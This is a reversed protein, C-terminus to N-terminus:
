KASLDLSYLNGTSTRARVLPVNDPTVGSFFYDATDGARFAALNAIMELHGEPISVRYIPQTEALSAHIFISRSDSAWVPDAVSTQAIMRWQRTSVDYLMLRKQDLSIAAIYRGDPSWRPSFLGDSDSLTDTKGTALDLIQISRSGSEKGLLDNVRGFALSRGDASWTPDGANRSEQLLRKPSGGEARVLYIQWASGPERAMIALQSGDPSWSALFVQMSDPTVQLKETGDLRSRWLRGPMDTWAVWARDRSYTVRNAGTLFTRDPIFEKSQADYRHLGFRSDLGLFFIRAGTRSAVPEQFNLPGNTIRTPTSTNSGSLRWLDSTGNQASQFVYYRGDSTWVGCCENAPTTWRDLIPKPHSDGAALQWLSLTHAIPDILTFRLLKADPSWRMWFARGPLEAYLKPNDDRQTITFLQNGAAYLITTGDPMWTADHALINSVRLASGGSTPVVWLAQESEPSLHSRLLLKSGNPSIDGLSPSALESPLSLPQVEGTSIDVQSLTPRGNEIISAFLHVGDSVASPLNEMSPAGPAIRGNQTIQTIQIPSSSASRTGILYSILSVALLLLLAGTTALWRGKAPKTLPIHPADAERPHATFYPTPQSTTTQTKATLNIETQPESNQAEITLAAEVPKTPTAKEPAQPELQTVPAIFRYGRRALTEIFRPNDASDGLAERIKNVATGLSHDFDVTTDKGWLRLQLDERTIVEGPKELLTALVKFPQSQIKIRRGAKWLEETQLDAEFLGFSVRTSTTPM